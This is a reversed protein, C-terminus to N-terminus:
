AKRKWAIRDGDREIEFGAIQESSPAPASQREHASWSRLLKRWNRIPKGDIHWGRGANLNFFKESVDDSIGQAKGFNKIEDISPIALCGSKDRDPKIDIDTETEKDIDLASTYSTDRGHVVTGGDGASAQFGAGTRQDYAAWAAELDPLFVSFCVDDLPELQPKKHTELYRFCNFICSMATEAPLTRLFAERESQLKFWTPHGAKKRGM